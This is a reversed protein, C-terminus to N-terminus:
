QGLYVTKTFQDRDLQWNIHYTGYIEGNPRMSPHFCLLLLFHLRFALRCLPDFHNSVNAKSKCFVFNEPFGAAASVANTTGSLKRILALAARM